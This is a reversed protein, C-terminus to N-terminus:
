PKWEARERVSPPNILHPILDVASAQLTDVTPVLIRGAEHLARETRVPDSRTALVMARAPDWAALRAARHATVHVIDRWEAHIPRRHGYGPARPHSHVAVMEIHAANAAPWSTDSTALTAAERTADLVPSVWWEPREVAARTKINWLDEVDSLAAQLLPLTNDIVDWGTPDPLEELTTATGNLHALRLWTPTHVKLLWGTLLLRRADDRGDGNTGIVQGIYPYLRQRPEFPLRDNLSRAYAGLVPSVCDPHDSHTEGAVYAVAEMFCLGANFTAHSGPLLVTGPPLTREILPPPTTPPTITITM